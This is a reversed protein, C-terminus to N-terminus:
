ISLEFVFAIKLATAAARTAVNDATAAMQQAVAIACCTRHRSARRAGSGDRISASTSIHPSADRRTRM